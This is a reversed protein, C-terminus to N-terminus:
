TGLPSQPIPMGNSPREGGSIGGVEAWLYRVIWVTLAMESHSALVRRGRGGNGRDTGAADVLFLLRTGKQKCNLPRRDLGSM